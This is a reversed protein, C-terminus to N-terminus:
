LRNIKYNRMKTSKWTKYNEEKSYTSLWLIKRNDNKNKFYTLKIRQMCIKKIFKKFKGDFDHKKKM